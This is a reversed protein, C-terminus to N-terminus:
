LLPTNSFLLECSVFIQVNSVILFLLGTDDDPVESKTTCVDLEHNGIEVKNM